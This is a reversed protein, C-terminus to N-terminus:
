IFMVPIYKLIWEGAIRMPILSLWLGMRPISGFVQPFKLEKKKGRTGNFWMRLDVRMCKYENWYLWVKFLNWFINLGLREKGGTQAMLYGTGFLNSISLCNGCSERLFWHFVFQRVASYNWLRLTHLLFLWIKLYFIPVVYHEQWALKAIIDIIDKSKPFHQLVDRERLKM